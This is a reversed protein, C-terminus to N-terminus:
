GLSESKGRLRKPRGPAESVNWPKAAGHLGLSKRYKTVCSGSSTALSPLAAPLGGSSIGGEQFAPFATGREPSPLLSEGATAKGPFWLIMSHNLNSLAQFIIQVGSATEAFGPCELSAKGSSPSPQQEKPLDQLTGVGGTTEWLHSHTEWPTGAQEPTVVARQYEENNRSNKDGALSANLHSAPSTLKPISQQARGQLLTQRRWPEEQEGQSTSPPNWCPFPKTRASGQSGAHQGTSNSSNQQASCASSVQLRRPKIPCRM